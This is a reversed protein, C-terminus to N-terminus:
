IGDGYSQHYVDLGGFGFTLLFLSPAVFTHSISLVQALKM